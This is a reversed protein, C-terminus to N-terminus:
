GHHASFLDHLVRVTRLFSGPDRGTKGSLARRVREESHDSRSALERVVRDSPRVGRLVATRMAAILGESADQQWYFRAVGDIHEVLERRAAEGPAPIRQQRYGSRWIWFAIWIGLLVVAVPWRQWLMIPLAPMETNFLWWLKPRDDTLWRLLHANDHCEIQRNRWLGLSTLVVAAGDGVDLYLLQPGAANEAYSVEHEGEYLLSSWTGLSVTIDQEEDALSIRALGRDGPCSGKEVLEELVELPVAGSRAAVEGSEGELEMVRVGLQDLLLDGSSAADDDWFETALAILRGGRHVWEILDNVRRESLSRRSSAILLTHDAAPLEDLLALGDRSEVEVEFKDLFQEAALYPNRLAEVSYGDNHTEEVWEMTYIVVAIGVAFIAGLAQSPSIRSIMQLM